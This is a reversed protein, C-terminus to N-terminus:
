ITSQKLPDHVKFEQNNQMCTSMSIVSNHMKKREWEEVEYKRTRIGDIRQLRGKVGKGRRRWM